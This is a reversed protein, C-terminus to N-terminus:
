KNGYKEIFKEYTLEPIETKEFNFFNFTWTIDLQNHELLTDYILLGIENEGENNLVSKGGGCWFINHKFLIEQVVKSQEPTVRIKFPEVKIPNESTAQNPKTVTYNKGEVGEVEQYIDFADSVKADPVNLEVDILEIGTFDVDPYQEKLADITCTEPYLTPVDSSFVENYFINVFKKIDSFVITKFKM